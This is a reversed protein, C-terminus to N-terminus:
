RARAHLLRPPLGPLLRDRRDAQREEVVELRARVRGQRRGQRAINSSTQRARARSRGPRTRHTSARSRADAGNAAEEPRGDEIRASLVGAHRVPCGRPELIAGSRAYSLPYLAPRRLWLDCTRIRSRADSGEVLAVDIRGCKGSSVARRIDYIPGENTSARKSSEALDLHRALAMWAAHLGRGGGEAAGDRIQPQRLVVSM